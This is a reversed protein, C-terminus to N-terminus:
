PRALRRLKTIMQRGAAAQEDRIHDHPLEPKGIPREGCQGLATDLRDDEIRHLLVGREGSHQRSHRSPLPGGRDHAKAAAARHIDGFERGIQESRAFVDLIQPADPFGGAPPKRQDLHWGCGARTRFRRRYRHDRDAATLLAADVARREGGIEGDEIRVQSQRSRVADGGRGPDVRHDV